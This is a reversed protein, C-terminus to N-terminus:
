EFICVLVHRSVNAECVYFMKYKSVSPTSAIISASHSAKAVLKIFCFFFYRTINM